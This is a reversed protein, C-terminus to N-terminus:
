NGVRAPRDRSMTRRATSIALRGLVIWGLALRGMALGGMAIWGIALGARPPASSERERVCCKSLDGSENANQRGAKGRSSRVHFRGREPMRSAPVRMRAM